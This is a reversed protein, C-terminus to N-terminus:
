FVGQCLYRGADAEALSSALRPLAIAEGAETDLSVLAFANQSLFRRM